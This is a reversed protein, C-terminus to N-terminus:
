GVDDLICDFSYKSDYKLWFHAFLTRARHVFSHTLLIRVCRVLMVNYHKYMRIWIHVYLNAICDCHIGNLRDRFMLENPVQTSGPLAVDFEICSFYVATCCCCVSSFCFGYM